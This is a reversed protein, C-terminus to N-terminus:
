GGFASRVMSSVFDVITYAILVIGLGIGSYLLTKKAKDLKEPHGSSTIYQFGGAVMYVVAVAGAIGVMVKVINDIFTQTQAAGDIAYAAEANFLTAVVGIVGVLLIFSRINRIEASITKTGYNAIHLILEYKGNEKEIRAVCTVISDDDGPDPTLETTFGILREKEKYIGLSMHLQEGPRVEIEGIPNGRATAGDGKLLYNVEPPHSIDSKNRSRQAM